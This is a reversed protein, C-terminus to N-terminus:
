VLRAADLDAGLFFQHLQDAPCRMGNVFRRRLKDALGGEVARVDDQPVLEEGHHGGDL